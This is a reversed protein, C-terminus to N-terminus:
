IKNLMEDVDTIYRMTKEDFTYNANKLPHVSYLIEYGIGPSKETVFYLYGNKGFYKVCQKYRELELESMISKRYKPLIRNM